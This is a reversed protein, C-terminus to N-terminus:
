QTIVQNIVNKLEIAANKWTLNGAAALGAEGMKQREVASGLITLLGTELEDPCHPDFFIGAKGLLKPLPSESTAIVPCGCAAAEVAPLGFGEMFSPLLLCLALNLLNNVQEDSLYGTFIVRETLDLSNIQQQLTKYTSYFAEKRYEGVLVLKLDSFERQSSIKSFVSILTDLNKHPGFGGIFILFNTLNLAELDPNLQIREPPVIKRFIPDAAEGVVFVRDSSMQFHRCILEKSYESVTVVADAQYRAIASKTTWFIRASRKPLTLEPYIEPIIDHIMVIKKARSWVPVYTYVTPFLVLDFERSSLARGVRFLDPFSRRSESTASHIAPSSVHINQIEVGGPLDGSQVPADIVFSYQNASDLKVLESLLARAHRGYGRQNFWVTADVGINM